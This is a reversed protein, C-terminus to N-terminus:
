TVLVFYSGLTGGQTQGPASVPAHACAADQKCLPLSAPGASPVRRAVIGGSQLPQGGVQGVGGRSQAQRSADAMHEVGYRRPLATRLGIAGGEQVAAGIQQCCQVM